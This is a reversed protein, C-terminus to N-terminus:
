AYGNDDYDQLHLRSKSWRFRASGLPTEQQWKSMNQVDTDTLQKDALLNARWSRHKFRKTELVQENDM